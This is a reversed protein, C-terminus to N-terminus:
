LQNKSKMIRNLLASWTQDHDKIFDGITVKSREDFQSLSHHYSILLCKLLFMLDSAVANDKISNELKLIKNGFPHNNNFIVEEINGKSVTKYFEFHSFFDASTEIKKIESAWKDLNESVLHKDIIKENKDLAVRLAEAKKSDLQIGKKSHKFTGDDKDLYYERIDLKPIENFYTLVVKLKKNGNSFDFDLLTYERNEKM